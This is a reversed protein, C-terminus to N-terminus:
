ILPVEDDWAYGSEEQDEVGGVSITPGAPPQPKTDNTPVIEDLFKDCSVCWKKNPDTPSRM